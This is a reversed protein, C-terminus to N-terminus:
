WKSGGVKEGEGVVTFAEGREGKGACKSNGRSILPAVATKEAWGGSVLHGRPSHEHEKVPRAAM